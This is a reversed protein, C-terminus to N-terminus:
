FDGDARARDAELQSAEDNEHLCKECVMVFAPRETNYTSKPVLRDGHKPCFNSYM